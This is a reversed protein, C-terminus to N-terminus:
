TKRSQRVTLSVLGLALLALTHPVPVAAVQQIALASMFANNNGSGTLAGTTTNITGFTGDSFVGYLTGDSAFSIGGDNFSSGISGITTAIGTAVDISVLENDPTDAYGFLIGNTDFALGTVSVGISGVLTAAGTATNVTYLNEGAGFEEAFYLTGDPAFALGGIGNVSAGLSGVTTGAGTTLDLTILQDSDQDVGFLTGDARFALGRVGGFGTAGISTLTGTALDITALEDNNTDVTYGIPAAAVSASFLLSASLGLFATRTLKKM